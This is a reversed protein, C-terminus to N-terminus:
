RPAQWDGTMEVYTTGTVKRGKYIGTVTAAAEVHGDSFEQGKPRTVIVSLRSSLAPIGIRWRTPYTNGTAPSTWFRGARRALPRVAAVEYSGDRRLATVWSNEATDNVIDWVALQAGNSLSVNMWTWRMSPDTVPVPGWQRDLWSVGSVRRTRGKTTLTGATRMAPFAYEYNVDDLLQILGMGSYNLVPGKPTFQANLSGWPTTAKVQMQHASGTWTLGPMVIDLGTTSWTFEDEPILAEYNRYWGTSTDIVSVYLNRQDASPFALTHVLVGFEHGGGHVRATIFISDVWTLEPGPVQAALDAGPDVVAPIGSTAAATLSRSPTAAQASLPVVVGFLAAAVTAVRALCRTRHAVPMPRSRGRHKSDSGGGGRRRDSGRRGRPEGSGRGRPAGEALRPSGTGVYRADM